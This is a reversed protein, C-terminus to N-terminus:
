RVVMGVLDHSAAQLIKVTRIQGPQVDDPPTDLFVQGDVEPAQTTMRGSMVWEHEESPGDILVPVDQGVWRSLRERSIESQLDMLVRQREQKVDEPVQNPLTAAPTGDEQCYTFVGVRDFRHQKV